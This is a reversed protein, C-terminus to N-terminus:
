YLQVILVATCYYSRTSRLVLVLPVLVPVPAPGPAPKTGNGTSNSYRDTCSVPKNVFSLRSSVSPPSRFLLHPACVLIILGATDIRDYTNFVPVLLVPKSLLEGVAPDPLLSDLSPPPSSPPPLASPPPLSLSPPPPSPPPCPPPLTTPPPKPPLKQALLSCSSSSSARPWSRCGHTPYLDPRRWTYRRLEQVMTCHM